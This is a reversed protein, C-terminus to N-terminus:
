CKNNNDELQKLKDIKAKDRQRNRENIADRNAEAYARQKARCKVCTKYRENLRNYGFDTKIHEEDNIFKCKCNTCKIYKNDGHQETM